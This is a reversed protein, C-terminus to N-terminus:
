FSYRLTASTTRGNIPRIRVFDGATAAGEEGETFGEADFLNNANLSLSLQDNFRYNFFLNATIYSDFKLSNNDQVFVEDTGVFNIGTDWADATYHPTVNFIYDAQRRPTNGANAGSTIESDTLTLSGKVGFGNNFLLDGEFEFGSATFTNGRLTQSTVEFQRSEETDADFYTVYFSAVDGRYKFGIETQEVTSYASESLISGDQRKYM